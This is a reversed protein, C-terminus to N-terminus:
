TPRPPQSTLGSAPRCTPFRTRSAVQQARVVRNTTTGPANGVQQPIVELARRANHQRPDGGRIAKDGFEDEGSHVYTRQAAYTRCNWTAPWTRPSNRGCTKIREANLGTPRTDAPAQRDYANLRALLSPQDGKVVFLYDAGRELVPEAAESSM